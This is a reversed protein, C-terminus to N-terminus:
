SLEGEQLTLVLQMFDRGREGYNKYWDFSTCGPSLLVTAGSAGHRIQTQAADTALAVAEAMSAARDVTCIPEFVAALEDSADGTAVVHGIHPALGALVDLGLGKNRGGAILVVDNFGRVAAAVAHPTTAKSDNFYDVGGVNAVFQVRHDLGVWTRLVGRVAEITAGAELATAAAALGNAIDHPLQRQLEDACLLESAPGVLKRGDFWYDAAGEMSFTVCRSGAPRNRMVVPDDANLIAVGDPPLDAFIKAKAAEYADLSEHVDLHDPGWNLWTAVAPAFAVSRGLRFSSAEVVFVETTADEIAAVLPLDNNGADVASVGSNLLMQLVMTTVTTKGDTGTIAVMPRHDWLQALDFESGITVGATAAAAFVPHHDPVGPSPVVLTSSAVATALEDPSPQALLAIGAESGGLEAILDRHEETPRDEVVVVAGGHALVARVVSRGAFGLGIVLTNTTDISNPPPTM